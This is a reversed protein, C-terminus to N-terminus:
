PTEGAEAADEQEYDGATMGAVRLADAHFLIGEANPDAQFRCPLVGALLGAFEEATIELRRLYDLAEIANEDSHWTKPM